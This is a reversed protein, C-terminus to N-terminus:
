WWIPRAAYARPALYGYAPRAYGYGLSRKGRRGENAFTLAVRLNDVTARELATTLLNPKAASLAVGLIAPNADELALQLLEPRAKTLAIELNEETSETLAVGLNEALVGATLAIKLLAPDVPDNLAVRLLKPLADTLATRLLDPDAFEVATGLLEEDADAVAVKRLEVENSSQPAAFASTALIAIAVAKIMMNAERLPVLQGM